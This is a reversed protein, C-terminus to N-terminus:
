RPRDSSGPMEPTWGPQQGGASAPPHSPWTQAQPAAPWASSPAAPVGASPYSHAPLHARPYSAPPATPPPLQRRTADPPPLGPAAPAATGILRPEAAVKPLLALGPNCDGPRVRGPGDGTGVLIFATTALSQLVTPEVTHEHVRQLTSGTTTSGTTAVNVTNSWTSSYSSTTSESSHGSGWSSTGSRGVQEGYSNAQGETFSRGIQDTLQALVFRHGRGIHDAALAAERANGLRMFIAASGNTGVMKEADDSLHEFLLVLRLRALETQRVLAVLTERGLQDAGALVLTADAHGRDRGRLEFLLAQVLVRDTLSKRRAGGDQSSTALVRLGSGPWWAPPRAVPAAAASADRGALTGLETRLFGIEDAVRDRQGLDYMHQQLAAVEHDAFVGESIAASQNDLIRLAAALRAFTLPPSIASTVASLIRLDLARLAPDGGGRRDADFADALVEAVDQPGLGRLPGFTELSRPLELVEVPPGTETPGAVANAMLVLGAGVGLETLDVLLVRSGAALLSAGGTALLSTWGAGTGGYVDLRSVATTSLPFFEMTADVRAREAGDHAALRKAWAAHEQWYREQMTLVLQAYGDDIKKIRGVLQRYHLVYVVGLVAGIGLLLVGAAIDHGMASLGALLLVAGLIPLPLWVVLARGRRYELLRTDTRPPPLYL